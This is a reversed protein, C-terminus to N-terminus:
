DLRQVAAAAIPSLDAGGGARIAATMRPEWYLKIHEATAAAAREDGQVAFNRAIQNAMLTLQALDM